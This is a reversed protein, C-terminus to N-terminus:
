FMTFDEEPFIEKLDDIHTIINHSGNEQLKVRASGNVTFFLFYNAGRGYNRASTGCVGITPFCVKMLTSNTGVTLDLDAPKLKKLESKVRMVQDCDKRKLFKVIARHINKNPRHCSDIKENTINAGIHQLVRCVTNELQDDAISSQLVVVEGSERRSCQANKWCQREVYVIQKCLINDVNKVAAVDPELEKFNENLNKM